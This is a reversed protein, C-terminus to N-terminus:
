RLSHLRNREIDVLACAAGVPGPRPLTPPAALTETSAAPRMMAVTVWAALPLTPPATFLTALLPGTLPGRTTLAAPPEGSRMAM